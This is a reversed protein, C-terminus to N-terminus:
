VFNFSVVHTDSLTVKSGNWEHRYNIGKILYIFLRISNLETALKLKNIVQTINYNRRILPVPDRTPVRYQVFRCNNYTRVKLDRGCM